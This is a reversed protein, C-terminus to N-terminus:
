MNRIIQLMKSDVIARWTYQEYLSDRITTSCLMDKMKSIQKLADCFAEPTDQILIGNKSSIIEKNARSKTAICYLGSLAYEFTKTPPQDQYCEELPIFSIGINCREFYPKLENYAIRGHLSVFQSLNNSKVYDSIAEFEDGDGIIDYSIDIEDSQELYLKIGKVTKIIDRHTLTGVYLLSLKNWEKDLYSMSDAGLPLIYQKKSHINIKSKVGNSIYSISNFYQLAARLKNDKEINHEANNTVALTRIDVHFKRWPLLRAIIDCHEFYVIFVPANHFMCYILSYLLYFPGRLVPNDFRHIYKYKVGTIDMKKLHNDFCVFTIDYYDKLYQCWKYADTLSGFQSTNLIILKDM